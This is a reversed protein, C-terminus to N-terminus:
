ENRRKCEYIEEMLIEEIDNKLYYPIRLIEIMNHKAFENKIKDNKKIKALGDNGGFYEVSKFHQRGDYEILLNYDPLYFDFPLFLKNKCDHFIKERKFKIKRISLFNRIRREGDSECCISCGKRGFLHSDPRQWFEGHKPCVICVKTKNNIYKTKSYNYKDGHIKIAENIFGISTKKSKQRIVCKPCGNGSIHCHPRQWFEGHKPCIICVKTETNM